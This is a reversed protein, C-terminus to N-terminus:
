ILLRSEAAQSDEIPVDDLVAAIAAAVGNEDNSRTVRWGQSKLEECANGM